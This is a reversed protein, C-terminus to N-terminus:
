TLVARAKDALVVFENHTFVRGTLKPLPFSYQRRVLLGARRSIQALDGFGLFQVHTPDSRYGREQPCILVVRGGARLYPLYSGLLAEACPRSLHELVHAVLLTDYGARIGDPSHPFEESSYASLGLRRAERVAAINHDVGVGAGDLHALNRGIGCGVDLVRGRCIRRIHAPYPAPVHLLRKGAAASRDILRQAYEPRATPEPEAVAWGQSERSIAWFLEERGCELRGRAADTPRGASTLSASRPPTTFSSTVPPAPNM